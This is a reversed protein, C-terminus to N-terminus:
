ADGTFKRIIQFVERGIKMYSGLNKGKLAIHELYVIKGAYYIKVCKLITIMNIECDYITETFKENILSMRTAIPFLIKRNEESYM